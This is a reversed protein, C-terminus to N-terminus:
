RTFSEVKVPDAPKGISPANLDLARLASKESDTLEFDFIDANERIRAPSSSKPIVAVGSDILFRLAIQAPTKGHRAAAEQVAPADFIGDQGRHLPAYAQHVVGYKNMWEHAAQQQCFLHTEIQNVAPPVRNFAILDILRDPEFNSVGIARIRGKKYYEELVRWAAYVNGYPWHLLVMDIYDLGLKEFSDELAHEADRTEFATFWLKTTVFIESRPIGSQRLGEGVAKENKYAQATDILRYGARLASSVACQCEADSGAKYTGFGLMPMILGNGLTITKM